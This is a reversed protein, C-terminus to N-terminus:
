RSLLERRFKTELQTEKFDVTVKMPASSNSAVIHLYSKEKSSDVTDTSSKNQGNKRAWIEHGDQLKEEVM